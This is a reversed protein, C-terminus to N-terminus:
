ASQQLPKLHKILKRKFTPSLTKRASKSIKRLALSKQQKKSPAPQFDDQSNKQKQSIPSEMNVDSNSIQPPPQPSITNEIPTQRTSTPTSSRSNSTTTPTSRDAWNASNKYYYYKHVEEESKSNRMTLYLNRIDSIDNMMMPSGDGEM